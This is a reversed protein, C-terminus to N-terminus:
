RLREELRLRDLRWPGGWGGNRCWEYRRYTHLLLACTVPWFRSLTGLAVLM